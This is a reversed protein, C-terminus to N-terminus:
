TNFLCPKRSHLRYLVVSCRPRPEARKRNVCVIIAGGAHPASLGDDLAQPLAVQVLKHLFKEHGLLLEPIPRSAKEEDRSQVESLKGRLVQKSSHDCPPLLHPNDTNFALTSCGNGASLSSCVRLYLRSDLRENQEAQGIQLHPPCWLLLSAM